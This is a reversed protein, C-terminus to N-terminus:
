ALIDLDHKHFRILDEFLHSVDSGYQPESRRLFLNLLDRTLRIRNPATAEVGFFVSLTATARGKKKRCFSMERSGGKRSASVSEGSM